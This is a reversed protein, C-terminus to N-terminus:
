SAEEGLPDSALFSIGCDPFASILSNMCEETRSGWQNSFAFTEGQVFILDNEERFWRRENFIPGGSNSQQKAAERFDDWELNGALRYFRLPQNVPLASQIQTPHIGQNILERVILFIARRKPLNSYDGSKTAISYKTLDRNQQRRGTLKREEDKKERLRVMYDAAEPLPIIQQINLLVQTDLRYPILRVCRIDLGQDNLWLVASTIESSFDPSVLVIRVKGAIEGDGPNEWGLHNLILREPDGKQSISKLYAAFVSVIRDFALTSVMAAYRIAQLDM